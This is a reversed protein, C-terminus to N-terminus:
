FPLVLEGLLYRYWYDTDNTAAPGAARTYGARLRLAYREIQTESSLELLQTPTASESAIQQSGLGATLTNRWDGIRQRWGMAVMGEQYRAPNFYARGVDLKSNDFWRYRLQLTLGLDLSPQWIVRGRVHRRQNDDSFGQYGALGVLTVHPNLPVDVSAGAFNFYLGQNLATRTEVVDRNAFLELASGGSFTQRYSSDLTLLDHNSQQLWGLEANWGDTTKRDTRRAVLRLQQGRRQWDDQSFLHDTYRIGTRHDLHQYNTMADANLRRSSFRESDHSQFLGAGAAWPEALVHNTVLGLLVILLLPYISM